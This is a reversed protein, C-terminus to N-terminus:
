ASFVTTVYSVDDNEDVASSIPFSFPLVMQPKLYFTRSPKDDAARSRDAGVSTCTILPSGLHPCFHRHAIQM